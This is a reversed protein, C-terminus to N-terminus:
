PIVVQYSGDQIIERENYSTYHGHANKILSGEAEMILKYNGVNAATIGHEKAYEEIDIKINTRGINCRCCDIMDRNIGFWFGSGAYHRTKDFPEGNLYMYVDIEVSERPIPIDILEVFAGLETKPSPTILDYTYPFRNLQLVDGLKLYSGTGNSWGWKYRHCDSSYVYDKFFPACPENYTADLMLDPYLPKTFCNTVNHTWTYYHRDMNCHHLWFIPDFAAIDINSMNGNKGGIIDHLSNHPTELPVYSVIQHVPKLTTPSSSFQEYNLAYLTNNLQKRVTNLQM